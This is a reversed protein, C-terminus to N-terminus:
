EWYYEGQHQSFFKGTPIEYVPLDLGYLWDTVVVRGDVKNLARVMQVKRRKLSKMVRVQKGNEECLVRVQVPKPRQEDLDSSGCPDNDSSPDGNENRAACNKDTIKVAPSHHPDPNSSRVDPRYESKPDGNDQSSQDNTHESQSNLLESLLDRAKARMPEVWTELSPFCALLAQGASKLIDAFSVKQLSSRVANTGLILFSRIVRQYINLLLSQVCQLTTDVSFEITSASFDTETTNDESGVEQAPERLVTSSYFFELRRLRFAFTRWSVGRKYFENLRETLEACMNKLVSIGETMPGMTIFSMDHNPMTQDRAKLDVADVFTRWLYCFLSRYHKKVKIQIASLVTHKIGLTSRRSSSVSLHLRQARQCVSEVYSRVAYISVAKFNNLLSVLHMVGSKEFMLEIASIILYFHVKVCIWSSQLAFCLVRKLWRLLATNCAALVVRSLRFIIRWERAARLLTDIFGYWANAIFAIFAFVLEVISMRIIFVPCTTLPLVIPSFSYNEEESHKIVENVTLQLQPVLESFATSLYYKM